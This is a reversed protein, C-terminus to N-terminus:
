PIVEQNTDNSNNDPLVWVYSNTNQDFYSNSGTNQNNQSNVDFGSVFANQDIQANNNEPIYSGSYSKQNNNILSATTAIGYGGPIYRNVPNCPSLLSRPNRVTNVVQNARIVPNTYQKIQGPVLYNYFLSFGSPRCGGCAFAGNTSLLFITTLLLTIRKM